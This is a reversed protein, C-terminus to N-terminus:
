VRKDHSIPRHVHPGSATAVRVESIFQIPTLLSRTDDNACLDRSNYPGTVLAIFIRPVGKNCVESRKVRM